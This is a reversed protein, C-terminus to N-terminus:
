VVSIYFSNWLKEYWLRAAKYWSYLINNLRLIIDCQRGDSDLYWPLEVFVPEGSTIDAKSFDNKFDIIQSQM